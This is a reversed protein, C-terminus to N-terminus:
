RDGNGRPVPGRSPREPVVSANGRARAAAVLRVHVAGGLTVDRGDRQHEEDGDQERGADVARYRSQLAAALFVAVLWGRREGTGGTTREERARVGPVGPEVASREDASSAYAPSPPM